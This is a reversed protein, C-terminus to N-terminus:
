GKRSKKKKPKVDEEFDDIEIVDDDNHQRCIHPAGESQLNWPLKCYTGYGITGSEYNCTM